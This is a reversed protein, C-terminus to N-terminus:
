GQLLSTPRSVLVCFDVGLWFVASRLVLHTGAGYYENQRVQAILDHVKVYMVSTLSHHMESFLDDNYSMGMRATSTLRIM